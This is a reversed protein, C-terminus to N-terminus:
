ALLLGEFIIYVIFNEDMAKNRTPKGATVVVPKKIEGALDVDVVVDRAAM